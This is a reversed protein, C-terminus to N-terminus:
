AGARREAIIGVPGGSQRTAFLKGPVVIQSAYVVATASQPGAQARRARSVDLHDRGPEEVPARRFRSVPSLPIALGALRACQTRPIATPTPTTM